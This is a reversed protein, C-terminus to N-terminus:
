LEAREEGQRQDELDAYSVRFSNPPGSRDSSTLRTTRTRSSRRRGDAVTDAIAQAELSFKLDREGALTLVPMSLTAVSPTLWRQTGTGARRLSNAMGAADTSRAGREVPDRPLSAFM